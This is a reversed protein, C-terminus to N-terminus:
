SLHIANGSLDVVIDGRGERRKMAFSNSCVDQFNDCAFVLSGPYSLIANPLETEFTYRGPSAPYFTMIEELQLGLSVFTAEWSRYQNTIIAVFRKEKDELRIQTALMENLDNKITDHWRGWFFASQQEEDLFSDNRGGGRVHFAVADRLCLCQVGEQTAKLSLEMGEWANYYFSDFMGLSMFLSKRMVYFTSSLAQRRILSPLNLDDFSRNELAHRNIFHGFVHGTSQIRGTQPYLTLGQIISETEQEFLTDVLLSMSGPEPFVDTGIFLLVDHKAHDVGINNAVGYGQQKDLWVVASEMRKKQAKLLDRVTSDQPGDAVLLVECEHGVTISNLHHLFNDVIPFRNNVAVIISYPTTM